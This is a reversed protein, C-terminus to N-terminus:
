QTKEPRKKQPRLNEKPIRQSGWQLQKHPWYLAPLLSILYNNKSTKAFLSELRCPQIGKSAVVNKQLSNRGSKVSTLLGCNTQPRLSPGEILSCKIILFAPFVTKNILASDQSDFPWAKIAKICEHSKPFAVLM